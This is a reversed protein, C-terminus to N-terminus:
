RLARQPRAVSAAAAAALLPQMDLECARAHVYIQRAQVMSRHPVDLPAGSWDLRESFRGAGADFGATSWAPLASEAARAVFAFTSDNVEV